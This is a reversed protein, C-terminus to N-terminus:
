SEGNSEVDRYQRELEDALGGASPFLADQSIGLRRLEELGSEREIEIEFHRLCDDEACDAMKIAVRVGRELRGHITFCSKQASMKPHIVTPHIAVPLDTPSGEGTWAYRFNEFAINVIAPTLNVGGDEVESLQVGRGKLQEVFRGRGEAWTITPANPEVEEETSENNLVHPNLMWVAPLNDGDKNELAFYLAILAGETWDLLRTPLGVHRALFMWQDIAGRDPVIPLDKVPARMRFFQLLKNEDYEDRYLKPVLPEMDPRRPDPEGRFWPRQPTGWAAYTDEVADIFERISTVRIRGM